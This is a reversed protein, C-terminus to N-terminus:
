CVHCLASSDPPQLLTLFRIVLGSAGEILVTARTREAEWRLRRGGSPQDEDKTAVKNYSSDGARGGFPNTVGSFLSGSKEFYERKGGGPFSSESDSDGDSEGGSSAGEAARSSSSTPAFYRKFSDWAAVVKSGGGGGGGGGIPEM